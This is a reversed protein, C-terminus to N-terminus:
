YPEAKGVYPKDISEEQAFANRATLCRRLLRRAASELMCPASAHPHSACRPRAEKPKHVTVTDPLPKKPGVKGTPDWELMVKVKIGIVGQRLLVHRVATDVYDKVPQGSSVQPSRARM